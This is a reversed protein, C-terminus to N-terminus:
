SIWTGKWPHDGRCDLSGTELGRNPPGDICVESRRILHEAVSGLTSDLDDAQGFVEGERYYCGLGGGRCHDVLDMISGEPEELVAGVLM